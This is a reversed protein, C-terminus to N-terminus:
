RYDIISSGLFNYTRERSFQPAYHEDYSQSDGSSNLLGKAAPSDASSAQIISILHSCSKCRRTDLGPGIPSFNRKGGQTVIEPNQLLM